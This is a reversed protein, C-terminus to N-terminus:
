EENRSAKWKEKLEELFVRDEESLAPNGATIGLLRALKRLEKGTM